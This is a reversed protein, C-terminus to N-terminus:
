KVKFGSSQARSYHLIVFPVAPAGFLAKLEELNWCCTVFILQYDVADQFFLLLMLFVRVAVPCPNYWGFGKALHMMSSAASVENHFRYDLYHKVGSGMPGPRYPSVAALCRYTLVALAKPLLDVAFVTLIFVRVSWHVFSFPGKSCWFSCVRGHCGDNWRIRRGAAFVFCFLSFFSILQM